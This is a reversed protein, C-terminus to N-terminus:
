CLHRKNVNNAVLQFRRLMEKRVCDLCCCHIDEHTHLVLGRRNFPHSPYAYRAHVETTKRSHLPIAFGETLTFFLRVERKENQVRRYSM